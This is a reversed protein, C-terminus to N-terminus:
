VPFDSQYRHLSERMIELEVGARDYEFSILPVHRLNMHSALTKRFYGSLKQLDKLISKVKPTFESSMIFIITANKLGAHMRVGIISIMHFNSHLIENMLLEESVIKQITAGVKLQRQSPQARYYHESSM